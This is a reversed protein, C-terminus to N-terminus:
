LYTISRLLPNQHLCRKLLWYLKTEKIPLNDLQQIQEREEQQIQEREEQEELHYSDTLSYLILCALSYYSTKFHVQSPIEKIKKLEPSLFFDDQSFPFTIPIHNNPNIPQLHETSLYFCKTEDVIIIQSPSYGLFCHNTNEILHHLQKSLHFLIQLAENYSHRKKLQSVSTATFVLTTKNTNAKTTTTAGVLIRTKILSDFLLQTTSSHLATITHLHPSTEDQEISFDDTKILLPM